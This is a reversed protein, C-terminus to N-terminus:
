IVDQGARIRRKKREVNRILQQKRSEGFSANFDNCVSEFVSAPEAQAHDRWASTLGRDRRVRSSIRALQSLARQLLLSLEEGAIQWSGNDSTWKEYFAVAQVNDDHQRATRLQYIAEDFARIDRHGEVGRLFAIDAAMAERFFKYYESVLSDFGDKSTIIPHVDPASEYTLDAGTCAKKNYGIAKLHHTM